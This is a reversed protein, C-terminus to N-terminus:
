MKQEVRETLSRLEALVQALDKRTAPQEDDKLHVVVEGAPELSAREVTSVDDVGQGALADELETRRLGVHRVASEDVEGGRVLDTRRGEFLWKAWDYHQALRDLLANFAVLTVAGVVGGTISNDDGIIANQM